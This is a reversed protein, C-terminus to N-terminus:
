RRPPTRRAARAGPRSTGVGALGTAQSGVGLATLLVALLFHGLIPGPAFRSAGTDRARLGGRSLWTGLLVAGGLATIIWTILAAVSM